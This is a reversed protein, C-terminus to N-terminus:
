FHIQYHRQSPQSSHIPFVIKGALKFCSQIHSSINSHTSYTTTNMNHILLWHSNMNIKYMKNEKNKGRITPDTNHVILEIKDCIISIKIILFTPPPQGWPQTTLTRMNQKPLGSNWRNSDQARIHRWEDLWASTADWMGCSSPGVVLFVCSHVPPSQSFFSFIKFFFFQHM